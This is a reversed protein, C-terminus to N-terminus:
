PGFSNVNSLKREGKCVNQLLEISVERPGSAFTFDFYLVSM